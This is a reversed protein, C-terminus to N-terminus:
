PGAPTPMGPPSMGGGAPPAGGASAARLMAIQPAMQRQRQMIQAASNAEIGPSVSGPPVHKSLTNLAKLADKGAESGVGLLPVTEELVKVAISLRAIGAAQLGANATPMTAPSGGAPPPTGEAPGAVPALAPSDDM